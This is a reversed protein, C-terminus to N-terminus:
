HLTSFVLHGTLSSNVAIKATEEDRIEGVMIIDPDQRLASRLGELFTYGKEDDTQTQVIGPLHYEIPDEITIIKVGPSNIKKLFAYLATTKGSGTPGTILIMGNPKKIEERVLGTLNKHIGLNEFNLSITKPNLIRLVATEGYIGPLISTRIEINGIKSKISFRGDQAKNHINLKLESVLKIRSLLYNYVAPPLVLLDMLVGDLRLRLRVGREEPEFHIDSADTKLAASLIIELIETTGRKEKSLKEDITKKFDDLNSSTKGFEDIKEGSIEVIGYKAETYVPIDKYYEWAKKLSNDSALFLEPKYGDKKLGNLVIDTIEINPNKLAIKLIKGVKQFAAMFGKTANEESILKLADINIPILLLNIYPLGYKQSLIQAIDEMEKKKFEELKTKQRETKEDFYSDM